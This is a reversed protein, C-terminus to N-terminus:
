KASVLTHAKSKCMKRIQWDYDTDTGMWARVPSTSYVTWMGNGFLMPFASSCLRLFPAYSNRRILLVYWSAVPKITFTAPTFRIYQFGDPRSDAEVTLFSIFPDGTKSATRIGLAIALLAWDDNNVTGTTAAEKSPVHRQRQLQIPLLSINM